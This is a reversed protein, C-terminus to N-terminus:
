MQETSPQYIISRMREIASDLEASNKELFSTIERAREESYGAGRAAQLWEEPSQSQVHKVADQLAKNFREFDKVVHLATDKVRGIQRIESTVLTTELGAKEVRWRGAYGADVGPQFFVDLNMLPPEGLLATQHDFFVPVQRVYVRNAAHTDRRRTWLSFVLEHAVAVDIDPNPLQDITYDQGLRVLFTNARSAWAPTFIGVLRLSKLERNSLPRVEAVNAWSGALIYALYDRKQEEPDSKFKVFWYKDNFRVIRKSGWEVSRGWYDILDPSWASVLDAPPRSFRRKIWFNVFISM